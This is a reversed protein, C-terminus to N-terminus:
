PKSEESHHAAIVASNFKAIDDGTAKRLTVWQGDPHRFWIWGSHKGAKESPYVYKMTRGSNADYFEIGPLDFHARDM